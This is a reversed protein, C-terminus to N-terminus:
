HGRAAKRSDSMSVVRGSWRKVFHGHAVWQLLPLDSRSNGYAYSAGPSQECDLYKQVMALKGDGKCNASALNGTCKGDIQEVRTCVVEPIDLLRAFTTVYLDPSGSVLLVRHGARLHDTLRSQVDPRLRRALWTRCFSEAHESIHACEEGRFVARLVGQKARQASFVGAVKGAAYLALVPLRAMRHHKLAYSIVFPLFTDGALITGDLDFLAIPTAVSRGELPNSNFDAM